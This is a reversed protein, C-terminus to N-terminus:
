LDETSTALRYMMNDSGFSAFHKEGCEIKMRETERLFARDLTGKTECVFYIKKDNEMVLAWDPVYNGIPTPIKFGRPLKFYFKISEDAECDIAFQNEISSDIAIYNFVTKNLNEVKYLDSLYTEIEEFNFLTMEYYKGNIVEYKVGEVLLTNLNRQIVSVMNDLFMQPNIELEGYRNSKEFIEFITARTIDVRSQIYTYVDPIQYTVQESNKVSSGELKNIIGESTYNLSASKSQLIPRKTLPVINFNSFDQVCKKILLKSDYSVNYRTRSSIREWIDFLLPFNEANLEKNLKVQGKEVANKIRGTFDVSTDNQIENQLASTFDEYKENAIVTLINIRKSRVQVGSADVALRLGRGIEQRKKIDSKSENLTCIQFVNPNDWGERLASHTFIFRLPENLSLLREKDRMILSYTDEDDKTTGKTDKYNGKKDTSFYGNHIRAPSWYDPHLIPIDSEHVDGSAFYTEPPASNFLDPFRAKYKLAYKAFLEEFWLAFKGKVANGDDDYYRYNSVKDIFFLTLVKISNYGEPKKWYKVEKEFHHFITREMQYKIVDDSKRGIESDQLLIVGNSLELIAKGEVVQISNVIYGDKYIDRGGSLEYIDDGPKVNIKKEKIEFLNQVHIFIKATLSQKKQEFGVLKIFSNNFDPHATIGDVEIQKVLGLDYAQVPNLTYLQNYFDKHTASYRLTCLPNLNFIASKRIDTEMNQPEDIIVIPSTARVFDIPKIGTERVSNIINNDKTFSDINIVLVQLVNSSSFNRLNVLNKSEYLSFNIPPNGFITQFHDHTIQLNKLAGEKIAVGPVVIVFKKFGYVLNLSYITRLFTYTKGTGTEMEVTFNLRCFEDNGNESKSTILNNSVSLGNRSQVKQVNKLIQDEDLLLKNGIGYDNLELSQSSQELSIEFDGRALPQGEFIDVVSKVASIQYEQSGDFQFKM